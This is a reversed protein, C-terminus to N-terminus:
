HASTDCLPSIRVNPNWLARNNGRYEKNKVNPMDGVRERGVDFIRVIYFIYQSIAPGEPNIRIKKVSIDM